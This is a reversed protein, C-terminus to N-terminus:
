GGTDIDHQPFNSFNLKITASVPTDSEVVDGASNIYQFKQSKPQATYCDILFNNWEDETFGLEKSSKFKLNNRM